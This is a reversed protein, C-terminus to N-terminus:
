EETIKRLPVAMTRPQNANHCGSSGVGMMGAGINDLMWEYQGAMHQLMLDAQAQTLQGDKVAQALGANMSTEMTAALDKTSVGKEQAIQALTKGSQAQATLDEAEPGTPRGPGAM